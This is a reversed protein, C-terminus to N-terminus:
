LDLLLLFIITNYQEFGIATSALNQIVIVIIIIITMFTVLVFHSSLVTPLQLSGLNKDSQLLLADLPSDLLAVFHLM